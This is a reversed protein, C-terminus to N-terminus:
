PPPRGCTIGWTGCSAAVGGGRAGVSRAGLRTSMVWAMSSSCPYVAPQKFHLRTRSRRGAAPARWESSHRERNSPM